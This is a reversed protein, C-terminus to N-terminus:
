NPDATAGIATMIQEFMSRMQSYPVDGLNDRKQGKYEVSVVVPELLEIMRRVDAATPNQGEDLSQIREQVEMLDLMASTTLNDTEISLKLPQESM